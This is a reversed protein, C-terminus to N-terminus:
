YDKKSNERQLVLREFRQAELAGRDFGGDVVLLFLVHETQLQAVAALVQELGLVVVLHEGPLATRVVGDLRGAAGRATTTAVNALGFRQRRLLAGGRGCRAWATCAARKLLVGRQFLLGM